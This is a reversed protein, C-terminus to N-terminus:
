IVELNQKHKQRIKSILYQRQEKEEQSLTGRNM